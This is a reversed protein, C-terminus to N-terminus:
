SHREQLTTFHLIYM